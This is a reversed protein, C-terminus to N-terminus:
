TWRAGTMGLIDLNYNDFDRVVQALKGTEYLTRGNWCDVRTKKKPKLFEVMPRDAEMQTQSANKTRGTEQNTENRKGCNAQDRTSTKM